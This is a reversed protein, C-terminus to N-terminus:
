VIEIYYDNYYKHSDMTGGNTTSYEFVGIYEHGVKADNYRVIKHGNKEVLQALTM